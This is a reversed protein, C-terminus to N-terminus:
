KPLWVWSWKPDLSQQMKSIALEPPINQLGSLESLAGTVETTRRELLACNPCHTVTWSSKDIRSEFFAPFHPPEASLIPPCRSFMIYLSPSLPNPKNLKVWRKQQWQYFILLFSNRNRRCLYKWYMLILICSCLNNRHKGLVKIDRCFFFDTFTKAM